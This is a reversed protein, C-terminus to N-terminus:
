GMLLKEFAPKVKKKYNASYKYVTAMPIGRAILVTPKIGNHLALYIEPRSAKKNHRSDM